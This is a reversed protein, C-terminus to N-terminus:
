GNSGGGQGSQPTPLGPTPGAETGITVVNGGVAANADLLAGLVNGAAQEREPTAKMCPFCIPEGGPGYPRLERDTPGCYHCAGSPSTNEPM